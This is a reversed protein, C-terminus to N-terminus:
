PSLIKRVQIFSKKNIYYAYLLYLTPLFSLLLIFIIGSTLGALFLVFTVIGGALLRDDDIVCLVTLYLIYRHQHVIQLTRTYHFGDTLVLTSNNKIGGIVLPKDKDLQYISTGNVIIRIKSFSFLM